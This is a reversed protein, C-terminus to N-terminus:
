FPVQANMILQKPLINDGQAHHPIKFFTAKKTM